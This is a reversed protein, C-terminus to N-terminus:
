ELESLDVTQMNDLQITKFADDQVQTDSGQPESSQVKPYHSTSSYISTLDPNSFLVDQLLKQANETDFPHRGSFIEYAIVGVAYLDIATTPERGQIIEPAM